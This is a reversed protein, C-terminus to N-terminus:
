SYLYIQSLMAVLNSHAIILQLQENKIVNRDLWNHLLFAVILFFFIENSYFYFTELKKKPIYTRAACKPVISM